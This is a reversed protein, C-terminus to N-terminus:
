VSRHAKEKVKSHQYDSGPGQAHLALSGLWVRLGAPEKELVQEPDARPGVMILEGGLFNLDAGAEQTQMVAVSSTSIHFGLGLYM